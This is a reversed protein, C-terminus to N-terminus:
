AIDGQYRIVNVCHQFTECVAVQGPWNDHFRQEDKTLRREYPNVEPNKLEILFNQWRYGVIIDVFGKGVMHTIAVDVGPLERLQKVISAQNVDVRQAHKAM